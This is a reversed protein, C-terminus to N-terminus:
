GEEDYFVDLGRMIADFSCAKSCTMKVKGRYTDFGEGPEVNIWGSCREGTAWNTVPCYAHFSGDGIHTPSLGKEELSFWVMRAYKKYEDGDDRDTALEMFREVTKENRCILELDDFREKPKGKAVRQGNVVYPFRKAGEVAKLLDDKTFRNGLRARVKMAREGNMPTKARQHGNERWAECVAKIAEAHPSKEQYEELERKLQTIIRRKARLETEYNQADLEAAAKIRECEQCTM